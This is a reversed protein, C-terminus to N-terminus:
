PGSTPSPAPSPPEPATSSGSDANNRLCVIRDGAQLTAGDIELTPGTLRGAASLRVRARDNLDDVDARRLAVMVASTFEDHQYADWWDAVLQERAAEATDAPVIRGHRRYTAIADAPDGHRLQDLADVEWRHQQRRNDNLEVAPLRAALARFLGGADIEPLQHPDGVLVVKVHGAQAQALLRALQRTGVM